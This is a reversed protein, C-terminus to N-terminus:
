SRAEMYSLQERVLWRAIKVAREIAAERDALLDMGAVDINLNLTVKDM